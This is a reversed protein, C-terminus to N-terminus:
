LNRRRPGSNGEPVTGAPYGTWRLRCVGRGFCVEVMCYDQGDAHDM